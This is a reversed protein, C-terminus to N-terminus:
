GEAARSFAGGDRGGGGGGRPRALLVGCEEYTERIAAVRAIRELDDGALARDEPDVKGGPFM